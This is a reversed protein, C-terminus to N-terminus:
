CRNVRHSHGTMAAVAEVEVFEDAAECLDRMVITDPKRWKM